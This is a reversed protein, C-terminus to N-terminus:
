GEAELMDLESQVQVEETAMEDMGIPGFRDISYSRQWRFISDTAICDLKSM